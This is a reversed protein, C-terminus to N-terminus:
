LLGGVLPFAFTSWVDHRIRSLVVRRRYVAPSEGRRPVPVRRPEPLPPRVSFSDM